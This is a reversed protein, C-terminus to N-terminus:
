DQYKSILEVVEPFDIGLEKVKEITPVGNKTWGRRKYVADVLKQYQSERYERLMKLKEETTKGEIDYGLDKLQKDYRDKRSEYEEITVPGMSRYPPMDYERTGYGMKLNFIRQFNYVKESQKIIDEKTINKGTVGNFIEVYNRVHEPVKNPEPQYANDEPEIDNWPLKCLGNLSFWTRFLPFYHLAEAKDEFTPIQKNVMDMFILWAEDHQPGKNTLAYGGQQALSEKSVYHSYELGKCELSIDRLFKPDAGLKEVFYERMRKVGMGAIKGFGEGRAMQHLVELAADKNGFKLELGGTVEKNIIGREYCEMAFAIINGFSITDIGYTDCYFNAEVVYEPDFIGCDSGVGAITEYEAADVVVRQGKYPGTKLEFNDVAKACAMSCGYWCGDPMGQTFFKEKFVDSSLKVADPHSGYQCNMVPLLDYDNMVEVLHATGVERMRNQVKDLEYIERHLRLGANILKQKDAPANSDSTVGKYKVIIARIKKDRFVTGTGGRGAQKVRVAKRKVDYFSFNLMGILTNEAGRGSSVVSVNRKDFEDDAFMETYIEALQHTDYYEFNDPVEEITVIGNNGDIFIIVDKEAKGQIELADFGSFKLLPGFYGGVNCDIPCGTLPSLTVVASKGAGPYQTIGGIPGSSIIIENEPDNWKTTSKVANWLYWLGFGRGGIFIEKMQETVPKIQFTKENLNLYLSHNTYGKDVKFPQYELKALLKHAGRLEKVNATM